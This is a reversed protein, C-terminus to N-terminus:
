IQHTTTNYLIHVNAGFPTSDKEIGSGEDILIKYPGGYIECKIKSDPNNNILETVEKVKKAPVYGVFVGGTIVKVANPDHSNEPDPVLNASEYYIDYRYIKKGELGEEVIKKKGFDYEENETLLDEIEKQDRYSIGAVHFDYIKSLSIQFSDTDPKSSLKKRIRSGLVYFVITLLIFFFGIGYGLEHSTFSIIACLTWFAAAVYCLAKLITKM